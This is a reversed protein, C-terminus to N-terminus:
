VSVRIRESTAHFCERVVTWMMNTDLIDGVRDNFLRVIDDQAYRGRRDASGIQMEVAALDRFNLVAINKAMLEHAFHHLRAPFHLRQSFAVPHHDGKDDGASVAEKAAQLLVRGAFVGVGPLTGGQIFLLNGRGGRQKAVAM